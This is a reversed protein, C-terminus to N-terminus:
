GHAVIADTKIHGASPFLGHAAGTHAQQAHFFARRQGPAAKPVM